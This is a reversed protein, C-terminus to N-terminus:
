AIPMQRTRDTATAGDVRVAAPNAVPIHMTVAHAAAAILSKTAGISLGIWHEPLAHGDGDDVLVCCTHLRITM